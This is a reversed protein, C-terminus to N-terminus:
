MYVRDRWVAVGRTVHQSADDILGESVARSHHWIERGTRADLAFADNAATVFMVGNVVVPTNELRNTNRAHFVWAAGLQPLSAATIESLGSYRRGSYDGNYSMWNAAASQLLDETRVDIKAAAPAGDAAVAIAALAMLAVSMESLWKRL